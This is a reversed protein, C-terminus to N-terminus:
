DSNIQHRRRRRRAALGALGTGLLLLTTPEPVPQFQYNVSSLIYGGPGLNPFFQFTLTAIGSGTIATSFVVPHNSSDLSHVFVTGSMTFDTTVTLTPATSNPILVAPGNFSLLSDNALWWASAQTGNISASGTGDLIATSNPVVATGPQCPDFGCPSAIGQRVGDGAGGSATFTDSAFNFSVARWANRSNPAGGIQVHGSTIVIGDARATQPFCVLVLLLIAGALTAFSFRNFSAM